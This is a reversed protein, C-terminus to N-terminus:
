AKAARARLLEPARQLTLPAGDFSLQLSARNIRWEGSKHDKLAIVTQTECLSIIQARTLGSFEAAAKLTLWPLACARERAKEREERKRDAIKELREAELRKQEAMWREKADERADKERQRDAEREDKQAAFFQYALEITGLAKELRTEVANERRNSRVALAGPETRAATPEIVPRQSPETSLFRQVDRADYLRATPNGPRNASKWKLIGRKAMKQVTRESKQLAAAAESSTMWEPLVEITKNKM